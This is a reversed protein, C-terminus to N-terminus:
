ELGLSPAVTSLSHQDRKPCRSPPILRDQASRQRPAAPLAWASPPRADQHSETVDMPHLTGPSAARLEGQSAGTSGRGSSSGQLAPHFVLLGPFSQLQEPLLQLSSPLLLGEHPKLAKDDGRVRRCRLARPHAMQWFGQRQRAELADTALGEERSM